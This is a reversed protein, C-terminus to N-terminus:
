RITGLRPVFRRGTRHSASGHGACVLKSSLMLLPKMSVNPIEYLPWPELHSSILLFSSCIACVLLSSDKWHSTRDHCRGSVSIVSTWQRHLLFELHRLQFRGKMLTPKGLMTKPQSSPRIRQQLFGAPLSPHDAGHSCSSWRCVDRGPLISSKERPQEPGVLTAAGAMTALNTTSPSLVAVIVFGM